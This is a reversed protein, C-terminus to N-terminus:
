EEVSTPRGTKELRDKITDYLGLRVMSSAFKPWPIFAIRDPKPFQPRMKRISQMREEPGSVMPVIKVFPDDELGYRMDILLSKRLFPFFISVIEASDISRAVEALDLHFDNDM